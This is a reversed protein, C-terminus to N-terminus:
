ATGNLLEPIFEHAIIKHADYNYHEQDLTMEEIDVGLKEKIWISAPTDFIKVNNLSSYTDFREPYQTRDNIRWVYVPIDKCMASILALDKCYEEHKLHTSLDTHFKMHMFNYDFGPWNYGGNVDPYEEEYMAVSDWKVKENWELHKYDVTNFDDYLIFKEEEKHTRTFHGPDLTHFTLEKNIAMIWRDFYTSQIVVGKINPHVNLMHRIWRPYRQNPAGAASYIYCQSDALEEAYIQAYNNKDWLVKQIGNDDVYGWFGNTHSCGVFLLNGQM